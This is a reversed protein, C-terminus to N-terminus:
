WRQLPLAHRFSMGTCERSAGVLYMILKKQDPTAEALLVSSYSALMEQNDLQLLVTWVCSAALREAVGPWVEPSGAIINLETVM